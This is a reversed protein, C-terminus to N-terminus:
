RTFEAVLAAIGLQLDFRRQRRETACASELLIAIFLQDSGRKEDYGMNLVRQNIMISKEM